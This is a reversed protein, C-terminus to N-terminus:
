YIDFRILQSNFSFTSFTPRSSYSWSLLLCPSLVSLVHFYYFWPLNFKADVKLVRHASFSRLVKMVFKNVCFIIKEKLGCMSASIELGRQTTYKESNAKELRTTYNTNLFGSVILMGASQVVPM